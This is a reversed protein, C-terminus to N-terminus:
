YSEKDIYITFYNTRSFDVPIAGTINISDGDILVRIQLAQLTLRKDEFELNKIKGSLAACTEEISEANLRLYESNEIQKAVACQQTELDQMARDNESIEQKFKAEDGTIAFAKWIRDKQKSRNDLM